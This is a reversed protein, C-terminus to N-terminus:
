ANLFKGCMYLLSIYYLYHVLQLKIVSKVVDSLINIKWLRLKKFHPLLLVKKLSNSYPSNM